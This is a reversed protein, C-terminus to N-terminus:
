GYRITGFCAVQVIVDAADADLDADAANRNAMTIARAIRDNVEVEGRAIKGMAAGLARATIRYRTLSSDANIADWNWNGGFGWAEYYDAADDAELVTATVGEYSLDTVLAWYNIGGEIATILVDELLQHREATKTM